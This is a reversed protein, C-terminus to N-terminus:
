EYFQHDKLLTCRDYRGSFLYQMVNGCENGPYKHIVKQSRVWNDSVMWGAGLVRKMPIEGWPDNPGSSLVMRATAPEWTYFKTPSDYKTMFMDRCIEGDPDSAMTYRFLICGGDTTIPSDPTCGEQASSLQKMFPDNYEGMTLAVDILRVGDREIFCHGKNGLREVRIRECLKKPLGSSERGTCMGMLAGPGSLMLGLFHVGSYDGHRVMIGVGGEMYWPAFAPERINVIYVYGLAPQSLELPPPLLARAKEEDVEFFLQIGYQHNMSADSMFNRLEAKPVFLRNEM